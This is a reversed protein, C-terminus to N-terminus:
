RRERIMLLIIVDECEALARDLLVKNDPTPTVSFRQLAGGALEFKPHYKKVWEGRTADPLTLFVKHYAKWANLYTTQAQEMVRDPTPKPCGTLLALAFVMFLLVVAKRKM